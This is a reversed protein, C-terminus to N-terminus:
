WRCWLSWDFLHARDLAMRFSLREGPQVLRPGYLKAQVEQGALRTYILSEMGLPEALEVEMEVEAGPGDQSLGHGVPSIDDPRIGLTVRRGEHVRDSLRDPIPVATGDALRVAGGSITAPLLNMPPSGIFTAVFTTRPHNFVEM